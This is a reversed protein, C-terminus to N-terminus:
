FGWDVDCHQGLDWTKVKINGKGEEETQSIHVFINTKLLNWYSNLIVYYHTENHCKLVHIHHIKIMKVRMKWEWQGM